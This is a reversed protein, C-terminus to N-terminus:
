KDIKVYKKKSYTYQPELSPRYVRVWMIHPGNPFTVLPSTYSLTTSNNTASSYSIYVNPTYSSSRRQYYLRFYSIYSSSYYGDVIDWSFTIHTSNKTTQFNRIHDDQAATLTLSGSLLVVAIHLITM